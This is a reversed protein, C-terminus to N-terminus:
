NRVNLWGSIALIELYKLHFVETWSLVRSYSAEINNNSNNNHDVIGCLGYAALLYSEEYMKKLGFAFMEVPMRFQWVINGTDFKEGIEHITVGLNVNKGLLYNLKLRPLSMLGKYSPLLSPHFNLIKQESPPFKSPYNLLVVLSEKKSIYDQAEILNMRLINKKFKFKNVFSSIAITLTPLLGFLFAIKIKKSFDNKNILNVDIIIVEAGIEIIKKAILVSLWYDGSTILTVPLLIKNKQTM